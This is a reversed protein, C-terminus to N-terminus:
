STNRALIKITGERMVGLAEEKWGPDEELFPLMGADVLLLDADRCGARIASTHGEFVWVKHGIAAFGLLYGFFPIAQLLDKKLADLATYAIVAINKAPNPPLLGSLKEVEERGLEAPLPCEKGILLRGPSVIIVQRRYFGQEDESPEDAAQRAREFIAGLDPRIDVEPMRPSFLGNDNKM